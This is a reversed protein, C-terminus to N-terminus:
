ATTTVAAAPRGKRRKWVTAVLLQALLRGFSAAIGVIGAWAVAYPWSMREDAPNLPVAGKRSGRSRVQELLKRAVVAGLLGAGAGAAQWIREPQSGADDALRRVPNELLNAM